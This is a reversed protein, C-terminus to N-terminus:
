HGTSKEEMAGPLFIPVPASHLKRSEASEDVDAYSAVPQVHLSTM